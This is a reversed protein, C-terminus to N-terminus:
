LLTYEYAIPTFVHIFIIWSINRHEKCLTCLVSNYSSSTWENTIYKM